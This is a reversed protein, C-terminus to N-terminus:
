RLKFDASIQELLKNIEAIAPDPSKENGGLEIRVHFKLEMGVAARVIEGIQDALDQIENPRLEAEAIRTGPPRPQPPPPPPPAESPARLKVTAAAPYDCPWQSSEISRELLRARLAGDIAERITAWPLTKGARKSLAVSIALATTTESSWADPLSEPLIDM